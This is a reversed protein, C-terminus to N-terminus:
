AMIEKSDKKNIKQIQHDGM